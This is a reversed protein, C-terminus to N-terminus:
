PSPCTFRLHAVIGQSVGVDRCWCVACLTLVEHQLRPNGSLWPSGSLDLVEIDPLASLDPLLGRVPMGDM